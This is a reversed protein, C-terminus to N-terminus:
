SIIGVFLRNCRQLLTLYQKGYLNSAFPSNSNENNKFTTTIDGAQVSSVAGSLTTSEDETDITYAVLLKILRKQYICRPNTLTEAHVILIDLEEDTKSIALVPYEEKFNIRIELREDTTMAM